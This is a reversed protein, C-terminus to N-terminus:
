SPPSIAGAGAGEVGATAAGAREFRLTLPFRGGPKLPRRVGFLMLHIQGPALTVVQGPPLPLDPLAVMSM